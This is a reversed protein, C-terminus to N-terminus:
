MSAGYHQVLSDIQQKHLRVIPSILMADKGGATLTNIVENPVSYRELFPIGVTNFYKYIADASELAQQMNGVTFRKQSVCEINGLEAGVICLRLKKSKFEIAVDGTCDFNDAHNICVIHFHWLNEGISKKFAREGKVYKWDSLLEKLRNVFESQLVSVKMAHLAAM